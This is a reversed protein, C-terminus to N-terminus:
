SGLVPILQACDAQNICTLEPVAYSDLSFVSM